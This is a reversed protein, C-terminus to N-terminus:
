SSWDLGSRHLQWTETIRGEVFRYQAMWTLTMPAMTALSVGRLTLRVWAVDDVVTLADISLSESRIARLADGVRARLQAVSLTQTGEDTHRVSPDTVLEDLADLDRELWVREWYTRIVSAADGTM